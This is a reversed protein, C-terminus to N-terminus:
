KEELLRNFVEVPNAIHATCATICRGCGVCAIEGIMDYVYKGKRFYRHRYRAARKPRFNHDGAVTAFNTLLCGDWTRTRRGTEMNWDLEDEVNFCYCTPCVLNCSGCSYCLDAKEAWVPHDRSAALLAPIEEPAMKLKHKQLQERNRSWVQERQRIGEPDVDPADKLGELLKEGKPTRPDVVTRGNELKTLLVDYGKRHEVTANGMAGAFVDSSPTQVDSVVITAAQRRALYHADPPAMAFIKDLQAMAVFDYPHVGFVVFPDCEIVSQFTADKRNFTMLTEQPPQLYKKPPLLTVDYDLRLAGSGKIRDFAFRDGRAQPGYVTQERALADVWADLESKTVLKAIM